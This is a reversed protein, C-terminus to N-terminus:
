AVNRIPVKSWEEKLQILGSYVDKLDLELCKKELFSFHNTLSVIESRSLVLTGNIQPVIIRTAFVSVDSSVIWKRTDNKAKEDNVLSLLLEQNSRRNATTGELMHLPMEREIMKFIEIFIKLENVDLPPEKYAKLKELNNRLSESINNEAQQTVIPEAKKFIKFIDRKLLDPKSKVLYLGIAIGIISSHNRIYEYFDEM